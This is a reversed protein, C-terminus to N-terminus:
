RIVRFLVQSVRGLTGASQGARVQIVYRGPRLRGVLGRNRLAVRYVGGTRPLRNTILLARGSRRGNRARYVAIRVVQTGSQLRMSAQLGRLRLRALSVRRALSLQSVRLAAATVGEIGQRGSVAPAPATGRATGTATGTTAGPTAGSGGSRVVPPPVEIARRALPPCGELATTLLGDYVTLESLNANSWQADIDASAVAALDADSAGKFVATFNGDGDIVGQARWDKRGNAVRAEWVGPKAHNLRVEVNDLPAGAATKAFGSVTITRAASDVAYAPDPYQVNRVVTTDVKDPDGNVMVEVTDGPIIDPTTPSQFCDSPGGEAPGAHNLEYDGNEDTVVDAFGVPEGASNRVVVQLPTNPDYGVINVFDRGHFVELAVGNTVSAQAPAAFAAAAALATAGGIVSARTRRGAGRAIFTSHIV